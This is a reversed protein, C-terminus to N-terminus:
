RVFAETRHFYKSDKDLAKVPKAPVGSYLMHEDDFSKHLTSNAALVSCNPLVAGKTIISGMGVMCHSGITIPKTEQINEEINVSHTFFATGFGAIITFDGIRITNNCDFYHRATVASARGIIFEQRRDTENHYHKNAGFNMAGLRNRSGISSEEGMEFNELNKILNFHGIHVNAGIKVKKGHIYSLGIHASKDIEWGFVKRYIPIKIASPLLCVFLHPLSLKM